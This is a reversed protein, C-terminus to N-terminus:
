RNARRRYFEAAYTAAQDSCRSTIVAHILDADTMAAAANAWRTFDEAPTHRSRIM